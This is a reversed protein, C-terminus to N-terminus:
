DPGDHYYEAMKTIFEDVFVHMDSTMTKIQTL